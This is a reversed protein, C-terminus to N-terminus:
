EGKCPKSLAEDIAEKLMDLYAEYADWHDYYHVGDTGAYYEPHALGEEEWDMITVFDYKGDIERMAKSVRHPVEYRSDYATVFILRKGNPLAKIIEEISIRPDKVANTGLAMVVISGLNNDAEMQAILDAGIDLERSGEANVFLNDINEELYLRSGLLVSDGLVTITAAQKEFAIAEEREAAELIEQERALKDDIQGKDRKIKDIDQIVSQRVIQKQLKVMDDSSQHNVIALVFSAIVMFAFSSNLLFDYSSTKFNGVDRGKFVPEFIHFNFLVLGATIILAVVLGGTGGVLADAIVFSPWHLVYAGYSYDSLKAMTPDDYLDSNSYAVIILIATVLDTLLFGIYYTWPNSYSLIISLVIIVGVGVLTVQNYALKKYSYRKVFGAVFGGIAFSTLRTFDFFYVFGDSISASSNLGACLLYSLIFIILCVKMFISLFQQEKHKKDRLGRCIAAMILPWYLYFHVEIALSWTHMFLQKVFQAEYSGGRFVEFLNYNFSFAAFFQDFYKVTYDRDLGLAVITVLFLMLLVPPFIRIFRKYYFNKIDIEDTQFLEEILHFSILFGSLVFLINVGLFGAPLAQPIFHYILVILIGFVRLFDLGKIKM